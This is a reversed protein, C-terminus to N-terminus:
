PEIKGNEVFYRYASFLKEQMDGPDVLSGRMLVSVPYSLRIDRGQLSGTRGKVKLEGEPLNRLAQQMPARSVKRKRARYGIHVDVQLSADEPIQKLLETVDADSNMAAKLVEIARQDKTRKIGAGSFEEQDVSVVKSSSIDMSGVAGGIVIERIDDIDGGVEDIDFKSELMINGKEFIGSKGILLWTLYEELNKGNLSRSQALFVHNNIIMWYMISHVYEKGEPARMQEVKLVPDDEVQDLLAQLHGSTFATIDGFITPNNDHFLNMLLTDGGNGNPLWARHKWNSSLSEEGAKANLARRVAEELPISQFAGTVDSLRRYHISLPKRPGM